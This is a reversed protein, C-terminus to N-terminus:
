RHLGHVEALKNPRAALAIEYAAIYRDVTQEWAFCSLARVRGRRGMQGARMPDMLLMAISDALANPNGPAILLGTEGDLVIEPIGGARSAIVAKGAVMAELCAVGFGEWYSPVIAFLAQQTLARVEEHQVTGLFTVNQRAGVEAALCEMGARLPGDGVIVLQVAMGRSRLIAVSRIAVDVGKKEVLRATLLVFPSPVPPPVALTADTAVGNYAVVTRLRQAPSLLPDLYGRINQSCTTFASTTKCALDVAARYNAPYPVSSLDSGHFSLVVPLRQSYAALLMYVAASSFYHVNVVDPQIRRVLCVLRLLSIPVLPMLLLRKM